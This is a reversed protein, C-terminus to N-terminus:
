RLTDKRKSWFSAAVLSLVLLAFFILGGVQGLVGGFISIQEGLMGGAVPIVAFIALLIGILGEGAVLGSAYLVGSRVKHEKEKEDLNKKRELLGKVLGGVIIPTSLHIPLYLGVAIPLVPLGLVELLVGIGIGAFVLTWPLNGQMVGEIVLRMLTAQPAPLEKSGFGYANSLLYLVVGIVLASAVVGVIEGAQQKKPTAGVLFGTKLDQSTDGALAAIIAIVTGVSLAGIMGPIGDFGIGKFIATTILLTAITMGSVPNSSSGVLGVLRASVTAFFFGFIAVILAGVFGVPIFNTTMMFIVIVVVGILV